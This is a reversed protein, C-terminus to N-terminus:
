HSSQDANQSYISAASYIQSPFSLQKASRTTMVISADQVNRSQFQTSHISLLTRHLCSTASSTSWEPPLLCPYLLHNPSTWSTIRVFRHVCCEQGISLRVKLV